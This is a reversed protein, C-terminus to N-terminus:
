DVALLAAAVRREEALLVNYTRVAAGTSMPEVVVGAEKLAARLDKPFPRIEKGMGVLLVDYDDTEAILKDFDSFQFEGSIPWGYVGSPLCLISGIHSMDAFRFGGNGYADIPARGPFHAARMVIGKTENTM